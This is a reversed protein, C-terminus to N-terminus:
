WRGAVLTMVVLKLGRQNKKGLSKHNRHVKVNRFKLGLKQGNIEQATKQTM